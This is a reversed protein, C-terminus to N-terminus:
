CFFVFSVLSLSMLCPGVKSKLNIYKFALALLALTDVVFFSQHLTFFLFFFFSLHMNTISGKIQDILFQLM